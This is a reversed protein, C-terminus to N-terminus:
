VILTVSKMLPVLQDAVLENKIYDKRINYAQSHVEIATTVLRLWINITKTFGFKSECYKWLLDVFTNQARHICLIDQVIPEAEDIYTCMSSGKSFLMIVLLIQIILHDNQSGDLLRVICRTSQMYQDLSFCQILDKGSFVCDDTNREHYSDTSQDYNLALRIFILTFTNYKILILKDYENLASFEPILKFYTILRSAQINAPFNLMDWPAVIRATYPYLPM